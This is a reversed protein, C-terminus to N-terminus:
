GAIELTIPRPHEEAAFRTKCFDTNLQISLRCCKISLLTDASFNSYKNEFRDIYSTAATPAKLSRLIARARPAPETIM